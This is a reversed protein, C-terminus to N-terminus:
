LGRNVVVYGSLKERSPTILVYWYTGSEIPFYNMDYGSWDNQYHTTKYRVREARDFIILESNEQLGDIFFFDNVGDGNPTIINPIVLRDKSKIFHEDGLIEVIQDCTGINGEEDDATWTVTTIGVYYRDLGNNSVSVVEINDNTIPSGLDVSTYNRRTDIEKTISAPCIIVPSETDTVHVNYQCTSFNGSADRAWWWVTTIGLEFQEPGNNYVSSVYVNDEAIPTGLSVTAFNEGPNTGTHITQPCKIKPKEDDLISVEHSCSSSYGASDTVTWM